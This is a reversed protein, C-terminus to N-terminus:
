ISVPMSNYISTNISFKSLLTNSLLKSSDTNAKATYLEASRHTIIREAYFMGAIWQIYRTNMEYTPHLHKVDREYEMYSYLLVINADM